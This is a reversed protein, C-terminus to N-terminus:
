RNLREWIEQRREVGLKEFINSLHKKVTTESINLEMAIEKNGLGKCVQLAVESERRTLGLELFRRYSEGATWVKEGEDQWRGNRRGEEEERKGKRGGAATKGWGDEQKVADSGFVIWICAGYLLPRMNLAIERMLMESLLRGGGMWQQGDAERHALMIFLLVFTEICSAYVTNRALLELDPKRREQIDEKEVTPLYLIMGGFLVLLLQRWDFLEKPSLGLFLSVFALYLLVSLMKKMSKM